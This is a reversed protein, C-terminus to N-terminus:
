DRPKTSSRAVGASLRRMFEAVSTQPRRLGVREDPDMAALPIAFGRAVYTRVEEESKDPDVAAFAALAHDIDITVHQASLTGAGEM